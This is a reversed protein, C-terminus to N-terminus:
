SSAPIAKNTEALSAFSDLFASSIAQGIQQQHEKTLSASINIIESRMTQGADVIEWAMTIPFGCNRLIEVFRKHKGFLKTLELITNALAIRETEPYTERCHLLECLQRQFALVQDFVEAVNPGLTAFQTRLENSDM